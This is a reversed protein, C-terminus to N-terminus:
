DDQDSEGPCWRRHCQCACRLQGEPQYELFCNDDPQEEDMAQQLQAIYEDYTM